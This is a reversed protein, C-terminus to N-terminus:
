RVFFSTYSQETKGQINNCASIFGNPGPARKTPFTKIGFENEQISKAIKLNKSKKYWNQENTKMYTTSNIVMLINM